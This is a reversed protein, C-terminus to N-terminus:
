AKFINFQAGPMEFIRGKGKCGMQMCSQEVACINKSLSQCRTDGACFQIQWFRRSFHQRNQMKESPCVSGHNTSEPFKQRIIDLGHKSRSALFFNIYFTLNQAIAYNCSGLICESSRNTHPLTHKKYDQM